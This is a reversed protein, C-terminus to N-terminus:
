ETGRKHRTFDSYQLKGDKFWIGGLLLQSTTPHEVEAETGYMNDFYFTNAADANVPTIIISDIADKNADTVASVDVTVKQWVGTDTVDPTSETTTGGSDHIGAKINSGTRDASYIYFIWDDKGSLDVTPSITRTLTDNLSDTIVAIGKLSYSGQQKITSESSCQLDKQPNEVEIGYGGYYIAKIEALTLVSTYIRVDDIKGNWFGSNGGGYVNKGIYLTAGSDMDSPGITDADNSAVEVGDLYIKHTNAGGVTVAIHHWDTDIAEDANLEEKDNNHEIYANVKNTAHDPSIWVLIADGTDKYYHLLCENGITDTRKFWICITAESYSDLLGADFGAIYDSSGNFSLAGNIKGAATIDETNQQATGANSGVSDIVVKTAANDNMKYQSIPSPVTDSSVYAAQATADTAYEFMDLTVDAAFGMCSFAFVLLLISLLRKM